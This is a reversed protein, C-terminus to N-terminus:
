HQSGQSSSSAKFFRSLILGAGIGGVVFMAPNERALRAADQLLEEANKHELKGAFESLSSALSSMTQALTEQGQEDLSEAASEFAKAGAGAVNSAEQKHGETEEMARGRAASKAEESMDRAKQGLDTETSSDTGGNGPTNSHQTHM